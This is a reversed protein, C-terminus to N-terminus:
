ILEKALQEASIKGEFFKMLLGEKSTQGNRHENFVTPFYVFTGNYNWYDNLWGQTVTNNDFADPQYDMFLTYNIKWQVRAYDELLLLAEEPHASSSPIVAISMSAKCLAPQDETIRMPITCSMGYDQVPYGMGNLCNEFLEPLKSKNRPEAKYLALGVTRTREALAILERHNFDVGEQAYRQQMEWSQLLFEMLWYCYNYKVTGTNWRTLHSICVTDVPNEIWKELFDLLEAYSQPADERSLGAAKWAERNWHFPYIHHLIPLGYIHGYESVVEYQVWHPMRCIIRTIEDSSSLDNLLGARRLAQFDDSATRLMLADPCNESKLLKVKSGFPDGSVDVVKLNPHNKLFSTRADIEYLRLTVPEDAFACGVLMVCCLILLIIRRM